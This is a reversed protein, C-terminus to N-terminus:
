QFTTTWAGLLAQLWQSSRRCGPPGSWPPLRSRPRGRWPSGDLYRENAAVRCHSSQGAVSRPPLLGVGEWQSPNIHRRPCPHPPPTQISGSPFPAFKTQRTCHVASITESRTVQSLGAPPIVFESKSSAASNRFSYQKGITQDRGLQCTGKVPLSLVGVTPQNKWSAEVTLGITTSRRRM